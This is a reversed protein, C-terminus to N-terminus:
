GAQYYFGKIAEKQRTFEIYSCGLFSAASDGSILGAEAAAIVVGSFRGRRSHPVADIPFYDLTYDERAKWEDGPLHDFKGFKFDAPIAGANVLQWKAATFSIGYNDMVARIGSDKDDYASFINVVGDRPAIFQVAFGNARMEVPDRRGPAGSQFDDFDSFEDVVLKNLKQSPDWLLHGLEHALTNRRVWVNKNQGETNLVVGRADDSVAITAGAFRQNFSAQVVPINLTEEVLDRMSEIPANPAIGLAARTRDALNFGKSWTPYLYNDDPYIGHDNIVRAQSRGLRAQLTSQRKIVWAAESLRMVMQPTFANLNQHADGMFERLRVGLAPDGGAGPQCGLLSEDLVLVRGIDEITRYPLTNKAQEFDKLTEEEIHVTRALNDLGLGMQIRRERITNGPESSDWLVPVVDRDVLGYIIDEGFAELAERANIRRGTARPNDYGVQIQSRVFLRRSTAARDEPTLGSSEDGFVRILDQETWKLDM